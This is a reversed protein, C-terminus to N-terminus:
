YSLSKIHCTFPWCSHILSLSQWCETGTVPVRDWTCLPQLSNFAGKLVCHTTWPSLGPKMMARSKRELGTIYPPVGTKKQPSLVLLFKERTEFRQVTVCSDWARTKMSSHWEKDETMLHRSLLTQRHSSYSIPDPHTPPPSSCGGKDPPQQNQTLTWQRGQRQESVPHPKRLESQQKTAQPLLIWVVHVHTQILFFFFFFSPIPGLTPTQPQETLPLAVTLVLCTSTGRGEKRELNTRPHQSVWYGHKHTAPSFLTQKQTEQAFYIIM